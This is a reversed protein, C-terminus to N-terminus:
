SSNCIHNLNIVSIDFHSVAEAHPVDSAENQLCIRTHNTVACHNPKALTRNLGTAVYQCLPFSAILCTAIPCQCRLLYHDIQLRSVHLIIGILTAHKGYIFFEELSSNQWNSKLKKINCNLSVSM